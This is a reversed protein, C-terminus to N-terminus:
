FAGVRIGLRSEIEPGMVGYASVIGVLGRRWPCFVWHKDRQKELCYLTNMGRPKGRNTFTYGSEIRTQISQVRTLSQIYKCVRPM